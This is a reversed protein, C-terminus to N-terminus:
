ERHSVRSLHTLELFHRLKCPRRVVIFSIQGTNVNISVEWHASKPPPCLERLVMTVILLQRPPHTRTAKGGQHYHCLRCPTRM